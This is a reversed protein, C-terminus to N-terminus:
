RDEEAEQGDRQKKERNTHTGEKDQPPMWQPPTLRHQTAAPRVQKAQAHLHPKERAQQRAWAVKERGEESEERVRLM